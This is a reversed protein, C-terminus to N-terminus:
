LYGKYNNDFDFVTLPSNEPFNRLTHFVDLNEKKTEFSIDYRFEELLCINAFENIKNYIIPITQTHNYTIPVNVLSINDIQTTNNQSFKSDCSVTILGFPTNIKVIQKM